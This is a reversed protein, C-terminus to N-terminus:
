TWDTWFVEVRLPGGGWWMEILCHGDHPIDFWVGRKGTGWNLELYHRGRCLAVPLNFGGKWSGEGLLECDLIVKYKGTSRTFGIGAFRVQASTKRALHRKRIDNALHLGARCLSASNNRDFTMVPLSLTTRASEIARILAERTERVRSQFFVGLALALFASLSGGFGFLWGRPEDRHGVSLGFGGVCLLTLLWFFWSYVLSRGGDSAHEAAFVARLVEERLAEPNNSSLGTERQWSSVPPVQAEIIFNGMRGLTVTERQRAVPQVQAPDVRPTTELGSLSRLMELLKGANEPRRKLLGVCLRIMEVHGAPVGLEEVLEEAWGPHLERTVDGVLLQYWLVGLSYLDHRPDPDQGDRQEKSMYLPTGAGRFLSAQEAPSLRSGAVSGIRSGLGAQRAALGGIGFDALKIAGDEMLVNAPKLDRHVLGREHAFALAEAVQTILELVEAPTPGRGDRGRRAALWRVLDGGSVYEYVLYPTRHELDYGYLRVLRPSWSKSGAKMLRELNAREQQLAPLLSRDLCFKIALPLHQLPGSARYVAGFGGSGILEELQYDTGPLGSPVPYPPLDAPLLQLLTLPQDLTVTPPLIRGRRERDSLLSRRVSRPIAALYDIAAQRDAPSAEPAQQELAAAVESRAVEPVLEALGAVAALRTERPLGRLWPLWREVIRLGFLNIAKEAVQGALVGALGGAADGALVGACGGLVPLVAEVALQLLPSRAPPGPLDGIGRLSRVVADDPTAELIAWCDPHKALYSEVEGERRPDLKGLCFDQLEATTPVGDRRAAM